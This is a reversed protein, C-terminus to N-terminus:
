STGIPHPSANISMEIDHHGEVAFARRNRLVYDVGDFTIHEAIFERFLSNASIRYDALNFDAYGHVQRDGLDKPFPEVSLDFVNLSNFKVGFRM